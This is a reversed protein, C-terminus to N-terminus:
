MYKVRVLSLRRPTSDLGSVHVYVEPMFTEAAELKLCTAASQTLVASRGWRYAVQLTGTVDPRVAIHGVPYLKFPIFTFLVCL